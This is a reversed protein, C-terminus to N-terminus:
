QNKKNRKVKKKTEKKEDKINYEYIGQFVESTIGWSEKGKLVEIKKIQIYPKDILELADEMYFIGESVEELSSMEVKYSKAYNKLISFDSKTLKVSPFIIGKSPYSWKFLNDRQSLEIYKLDSGILKSKEIKIGKEKKNIETNINKYIKTINNLMVEVDDYAILVDNTFIKQFINLEKINSSIAFIKSKIKKADEELKKIIDAKSVKSDEELKRAMFIKEKLNDGFTVKYVRTNGAKVLAVPTINIVNNESSIRSIHLDLDKFVGISNPIRDYMLLFENKQFAMKELSWEAAFPELIKDLYLINGVIEKNSFFTSEYYDRFYKKGLESFEAQTYTAKKGRKKNAKQYKKLDKSLPSLQDDFYGNEFANYEENEYFTLFGAVFVTLGGLTSMLYKQNLTNEKVLEKITYNHSDLYSDLFENELKVDLEIDLFSFDEEYSVVKMEYLSTMEDIFLELEDEDSIIRDGDEYVLGENDVACVWYRTEEINDSDIRKIYISDKFISSIIASGLIVNDDGQPFLLYQCTGKKDSDNIKKFDSIYGFRKGSEKAEKKIENYLVRKSKGEKEEWDLSVLIEKDGIKIYESM